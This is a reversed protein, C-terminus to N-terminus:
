KFFDEAKSAGASKHYDEFDIIQLGPREELLKFVKPLHTKINRFAIHQFGNKCEPCHTDALKIDMKNCNACQGGLDGYILLHPKIEEVKMKKYVRM